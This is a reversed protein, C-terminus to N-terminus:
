SSYKSINQLATFASIQANRQYKHLILFGPNQTFNNMPDQGHCVVFGKYHKTQMLNMTIQLIKCEKDLKLCIWVVKNVFDGNFLADEKHHDIYEDWMPLCYKKSDMLLKQLKNYAVFKISQSSQKLTITKHLSNYSLKKNNNNNNSSITEHRFLLEQTHEATQMEAILPHSSCDEQMIIDEDKLGINNKMQKKKNNYDIPYTTPVTSRQQWIQTLTQEDNDMYREARMSWKPFQKM